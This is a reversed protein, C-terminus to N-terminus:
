APSFFAAYPCKAPNGDKDNRPHREKRSTTGRIREAARAMRHQATNRSSARQSSRGAFTHAPGAACPAPARGSSHTRACGLLRHCHRLGCLYDLLREPLTLTVSLLSLVLHLPRHNEPHNGHGVGDDPARRRSRRWGQRQASWIGAGECNHPAAPRLVWQLLGDHTRRITIGEHALCPSPRGRVLPGM